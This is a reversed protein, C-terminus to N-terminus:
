KDAAATAVDEDAAVALINEGPAFPVIKQDAARGSVIGVGRGKQLDQGLPRRGVRVVRPNVFQAVAGAAQRDQICGRHQIVSDAILEYAAVASVPVEESRVVM